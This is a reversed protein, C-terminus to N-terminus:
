RGQGFTDNFIAKTVFQLPGDSYVTVVIRKQIGDAYSVNTVFSLPEDCAHGEGIFQKIKTYNSRLQVRSLM